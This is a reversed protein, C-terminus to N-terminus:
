SHWDGARLERLPGPTNSIAAELQNSIHISCYLKKFITNHHIALKTQFPALDFIQCYKTNGFTFFLLHM